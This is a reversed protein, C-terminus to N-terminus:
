HRISQQHQTLIGASTGRLQEEDSLNLRSDLLGIGIVYSHYVYSDLKRDFM